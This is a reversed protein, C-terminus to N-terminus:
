SVPDEIRSSLPIDFSMSPLDDILKMRGTVTALYPRLLAAYEPIAMSRKVNTLRIHWSTNGLVWGLLLKTPEDALEPKEGGAAMHAKISRLLEILDSYEM